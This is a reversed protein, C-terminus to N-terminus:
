ALHSSFSRRSVGIELSHMYQFIKVSTGRDTTRSAVANRFSKRALNKSPTIKTEVFYM